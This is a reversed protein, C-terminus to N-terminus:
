RLVHMTASKFSVQHHFVIVEKVGAVLVIPIDHLSNELLVILLKYNADYGVVHM